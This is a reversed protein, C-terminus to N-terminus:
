KGHSLEENRRACEALAEAGTKMPPSWSMWKSTNPVDMENFYGERYITYRGGNSYDSGARSYICWKGFERRKRKDQRLQRFLDTAMEATTMVVPITVLGCAWAILLYLYNM